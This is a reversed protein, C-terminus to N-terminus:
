LLAAAVATIDDLPFGGNRALVQVAVHDAGAEHHARVRELIAEPDGWAVLADTLSDSGGAELDEETFGHRLLNERYNRLRMYRRMHGRAVEHATTPDTELVVAAEVALVPDTGLTERAFATHDVPVFYTHAGATEAAALRLMRRGLAALLIPPPEAPEPGAYRATRMADLYARARELPRAFDHGRRPLSEPHSVGLGLVFRGPYADALLSSGGRAAVPDRAWMNAIGTCVVLSETFSLLLGAHALADKSASGEGIWLARLGLREIAQAAAEAEPAHLGDFEFSWLGVPGLLTAARRGELREHAPTM